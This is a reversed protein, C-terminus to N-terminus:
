KSTLVFVGDWDQPPPNRKYIASREAFLRSVYDDPRMQLCAEFEAQAQEWLRERYLDLAKAYRKLFLSFPEPVARTRPQILEFIKLPESRGKVAILDLERGLIMDNVLQYTRESVLINTRYLKNAGELRSALNVSDGIVTYDFKGMGGMNGVVMEGTNIGVRVNIEPRGMKTWEERIRVLADQMQLASTCARLAHNTQAIPAGWFAMVADGEYKDLTGDNAFVIGTMESLYENLLGVLQEPPMGESITTFGEIDSFLVTLERREGGLALKAPNRILDEVVSPNVYTSFMTKILVRQKREVVFHYATSSFYGAVVGIMPSIVTMLYNQTNFLWLAVYGIIFLEAMAFLFGNLEVLFHHRTLSGKLLSTVLFTLVTLAIILLIEGGASQREVFDERIVSEIVNAHIEVGYMLNDGAQKGRAFAVPFLDHDEPVTSGVLVIKNAFTGDYLYGYDPDSFTNIEEGQEAEENTTFTEDDVVDAFKVRRFTHDPGYFNILTSTPDYKPISRDAFLFKGSFNEATSLSPYGIYKNLIAFAFTPVHLGTSTSWFPTYRRYVGDADNRINALGLSSDVDFFINGYNETSTTIFYKGDLVDTKGALVVLGTERVAKRLSDDNAASYVDNGSFILDIGVVRAGAAKLNRVLRAYYSRPWPWREPMSKFSEESIEVIVVNASDKMRMNTGRSEFRYDISALELRQIIGLKLIDEQTIVIVLLAVALALGVKSFWRQQRATLQPSAMGAFSHNSITATDCAGSPTM